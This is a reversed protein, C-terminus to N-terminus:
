LGRVQFRGRADSHVIRTQRGGRCDGAILTVEAGPLVGGAPSCTLGALGGTECLGAETLLAADRPPAVADAPVELGDRPPRADVFPTPPRADAPTALPQQEPACGLLAVLLSIGAARRM